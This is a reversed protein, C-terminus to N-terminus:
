QNIFVRIERFLYNLEIKSKYIINKPLNYTLKIIKNNKM